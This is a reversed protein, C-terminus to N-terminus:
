FHMFKGPKALQFCLFAAAVAGNEFVALIELSNADNKNDRLVEQILRLVM